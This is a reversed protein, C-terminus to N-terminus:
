KQEERNCARDQYRLTFRYAGAPRCLRFVDENHDTNEARHWLVKGDEELCVARDLLLEIVAETNFPVTFFVEACDTTRQFGSVLKGKPTQLEARVESIELNVAPCLTIKGGTEMKIGALAKYYWATYAGNMPHNHSNMGNGDLNEWREWLTTASNEAMYGLSPYTKDTAMKLAIDNRGLQDLLDFWYKTMQNGTTIHYEHAALDDFLQKQVRSADPAFNLLLPFINPAQSGPIYYGQESDYYQRNIAAVTESFLKEFAPIDEQCGVVEAAKEMILCDFALYATSITGPPIHIPEASWPSQQDCEAAPPAWEGFYPVGITGDEGRQSALFKVYRKMQGYHKELATTDGYHCYVLWPIVVFSSSIHFAPNGCYVYPATDPISGAPTQADAIDELWKEYFLRLDFNYVAEECRVTVDNLWAMREDRQPCDTPISHMNSRETWLMMEFIRNLIEESCHFSGIERVSTYVAQAEIDLLEIDGDAELEAYRFGHYTFRPHWSEEGDGCLIYVDRAKAGRLNDQNVSGNSKLTEGYRITLKSGASGKVKVAIWGAFNQGFDAVVSHSLEKKGIPAWRKNVKIPPMQQATLVGGLSEAAVAKQWGAAAFGSSNWHPQALRADYVEGDYVSNELVAGPSVAFGEDQGSVLHINEGNELVIDAELILRPTGNWDPQKGMFRDFSPHRMGYWGEALEIGLTNEGVCLMDTIDYVSYLVRKRYDTWGPELVCDGIKCGNLFAEYYGIGSIYLRGSVPAAALQFAKRFLDTVGFRHEPASIWEASWEDGSLVATEFWEAATHLVTDDTLTIEAKWWYRTKSRLPAGAYTICSSNESEVIGSDWTLANGSLLNAETEAVLIRYAKQMGYGAERKWSFRPKRSQVHIPCCSFECEAIMRNLDEM